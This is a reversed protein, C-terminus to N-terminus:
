RIAAALKETVNDAIWKGDWWEKPDVFRGGAIISFHLHDGGALGSIGTNGIMEGKRVRRGAEPTISSLHSYLSFIGLGHDIIVTNGYIGLYGVYAVIGHNAAPVPARQTSALDVGLHVSGGVEKDSFLYTRKEGFLAMPAANMMRLFTGEWLKEGQTNRCIEQIQRFNANRLSDNLHTFVELPTKGKLEPYRETFEPMKEDLFRPSLTMKDSRFPKPRIRHPIPLHSRNGAADEATISLKIPNKTELPVPFYVVIGEQGSAAARHGPTFHDNVTVGTASLAESSKYLIVGTGGPNLYNEPTLLFITPPTMDILVKYNEVTRNKWLSHDIVSVVLEAEEEKLKLAVPNIIIEGKFERQGPAPFDRSLLTHTVGGQLVAVTISRIGRSEDAALVQFPRNPGISGQFGGATVQPKGLELYTQFLWFGVASLLVAASVILYVGSRKQM